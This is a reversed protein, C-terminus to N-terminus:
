QHVRMDPHASKPHPTGPPYTHQTGAVVQLLRVDTGKSAQTQSASPHPNIASAGFRHEDFLWKSIRRSRQTGQLHQRGVTTKVSPPSRQRKSLSIQAQFRHSRPILHEQQQGHSAQVSRQPVGLMVAVSWLASQTHPCRSGRLM